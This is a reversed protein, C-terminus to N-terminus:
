KRVTSTKWLWNGIITLYREWRTWPLIKAKKSHGQWVRNLMKKYPLIVLCTFVRYFRTWSQVSDEYIEKSLNLNNQFRYFIRKWDVYNKSRRGLIITNIVWPYKLHIRKNKLKRLIKFNWQITKWSFYFGTQIM